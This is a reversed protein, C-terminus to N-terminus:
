CGQILSCALIILIAPDLAHGFLGIGVWLSNNIGVLEATDFGRLRFLDARKSQPIQMIQALEVVRPKYVFEVFTFSPISLNTNWLLAGSLMPIFCGLARTLAQNFGRELM